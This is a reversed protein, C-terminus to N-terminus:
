TERSQECRGDQTRNHRPAQEAPQDQVRVRRAGRVPLRLHPQRFLLGLAGVLYRRGMELLDDTRVAQGKLQNRKVLDSPEGSHTARYALRGGSTTFGLIDGAVISVPSSLRQVFYGKNVMISITEVMKYISYVQNKPCQDNRLCNAEQSCLSAGEHCTVNNGLFTCGQCTPRLLSGYGHIVDIQGSHATRAMPLVGSDASDDEDAVIEEMQFQPVPEGMLVPVVDPLKMVQRRSGDGPDVDATMDAGASVSLHCTFGAGPEVLAPCNWHVSDEDPATTVVVMAEARVTYLPTRHEADGRTGPLGEGFNFLVTANRGSKVALHLTVEEGVNVVSASPMVRLGEIPSFLDSHFFRTSLQEGKDCVDKKTATLREAFPDDSCLCYRNSQIGSYPASISACLNQCRAGDMGKTPDYGGPSLQFYSASDSRLCDGNRSPTGIAGIVFIWLGLRALAAKTPAGGISATVSSM